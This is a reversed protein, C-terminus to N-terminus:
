FTFQVRKQHLSPRRDIYRGEIMAFRKKTSTLKVKQWHLSPKKIIYVSVEKSTFKAKQRDLSSRRGVDIQGETM